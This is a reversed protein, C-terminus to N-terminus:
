EAEPPAPLPLHERWYDVIYGFYEFTKHKGGSYEMEWGYDKWYQYDGCMYHTAGEIRYAVEVYHSALGLDFEPLRESVPIWRTREKLEALERTLRIIEHAVKRRDARDQDLSWVLKVAFEAVAQIDGGFLTILEASKTALENDSM